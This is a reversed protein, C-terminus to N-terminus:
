IRVKVLRHNGYDAVWLFGDEDVFIGRPNFFGKRNTNFGGLNKIFKGTKDFIKIQHTNTDSIYILGRTKDFAIGGFRPLEWNIDEIFYDDVSINLKVESKGEATYKKILDNSITYINKQEDLCLHEPHKAKFEGLYKGNLSFIQIRNNYTDSVYLKNDSGIVISTPGQLIGYNDVVGFRGPQNGMGGFSFTNRLKNDFQQINYLDLIFINNKSVDIDKPTMFNRGKIPKLEKIFEGNGKLAIVKYNIDAPYDYDETIAVINDKFVALNHPYIFSQEPLKDKFENIKLDKSIISIKRQDAAIVFIEGNSGRNLSFLGEQQNYTHGSKLEKILDGDFGYIYLNGSSTIIYMKYKTVLVDQPANEGLSYEKLFDGKNNFKQIRYNLTDAIYINDEEDVCIGNPGIYFESGIAGLEGQKEGSKGFSIFTGDPSIKFIKDFSLVILNGKSDIDISRPLFDEDPRIKEILKKEKYKYIVKTGIDAIYINDGDVAIDIPQSESSVLEAFKCLFKKNKDFVKILGNTSYIDLIFINKNDEFCAVPYGLNEDKIGFIIDEQFFIDGDTSKRDQYNTKVTCKSEVKCILIILLIVFFIVLIKIYRMLQDKFKVM